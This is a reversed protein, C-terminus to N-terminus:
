NNSNSNSNNNNNTKIMIIPSALRMAARPPGGAGGGARAVGGAWPRPVRAELITKKEPFALGCRPTGAFLTRAAVRLAAASSVGLRAASSARM